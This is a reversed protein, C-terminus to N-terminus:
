KKALNPSRPPSHSGGLVVNVVNNGRKQAEGRNNSDRVLYKNMNGKKVQHEIFYNFKLCNETKHGHTEHYDCQRNYPRSEPHTQMPKTPYYFPKDKVEKLIEERTMNLPTWDPEQKLEQPQKAPGPDSKSEQKPGLREFFPTTQREQSQQNQKFNTDQHYGGKRDTMLTKAGPGGM